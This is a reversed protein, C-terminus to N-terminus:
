FKARLLHFFLRTRDSQTLHPDRAAKDTEIAFNPLGTWNQGVFSRLSIAKVFTDKRGYQPPLLLLLLLPLLLLRGLATTTTV